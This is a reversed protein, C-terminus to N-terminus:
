IIVIKLIFFCWKNNFLFSFLVFFPVIVYNDCGFKGPCLLKIKTILM